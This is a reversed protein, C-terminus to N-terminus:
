AAAGAARRWFAQTLRKRLPPRGGNLGGTPRRRPRGAAFGQERALRAAHDRRAEELGPRHSATRLRDNEVAALFQYHVHMINEEDDAAATTQGAGKASVVFPM